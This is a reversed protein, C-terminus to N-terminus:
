PKRESNSVRRALQQHVATGNTLEKGNLNEIKPTMTNSLDLPPSVDSVLGNMLMTSCKWPFLMRAIILAKFYGPIFAIRENCRMAEIVRNAVEEPTLTPIYRAMVSDFMGTSRIFYPCIATTKINNYGDTELEVRLAEDFGVAAFKSATYDVLKPCGVHGAVSAISVIHGKNAKLMAPLFAKVTWFHSIVNVEMTKVLMNDPTELFRKAVVIGANNVLISVRGVEKNLVAAKRYVDERDCLDCVYGHCTGGAQKIMELTENLGKANIDWVVVIAGLEALKLSVLRGLGSGGGTVLAIEGAVSKMKYKSPTLWRVISEVIAMASLLLFVVVEGLAQMPSPM